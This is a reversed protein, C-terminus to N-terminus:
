WQGTFYFTITPKLALNETFVRWNKRVPCSVDSRLLCLRRCVPPSRSRHANAEWRLVHWDASVAKIIWFSPKAAWWAQAPSLHCNCLTSAPSGGSVEWCPDQTLFSQGTFSSPLLALVQVLGPQLPRLSWWDAREPQLNYSHLKYSVDFWILHGYRKHSKSLLASQRVVAVTMQSQLMWVHYQKRQTQQKFWQSARHTFCRWTHKWVIHLKDCKCQTICFQRVDLKCM